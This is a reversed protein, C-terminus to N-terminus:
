ESSLHKHTWQLLDLLDSPAGKCLRPVDINQLTHVCIASLGACIQITPSDVPGHAPLGWLMGVKPIDATMFAAQLVKWNQLM